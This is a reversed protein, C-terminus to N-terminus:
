ELAGAELEPASLGEESAPLALVGMEAARRLLRLPRPVRDWDWGGCSGESTTGGELFESNAGCRTM